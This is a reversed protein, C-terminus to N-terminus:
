VEFYMNYQLVELGVFSVLQVELHIVWVMESEEQVMFGDPGPNLVTFLVKWSSDVVPSLMKMLPEQSDAATQSAANTLRLISCHIQYLLSINNLWYM